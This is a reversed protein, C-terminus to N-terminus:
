LQILGRRTANAGAETRSIVNMKAFISKVHSKVTGESIFLASGIEKNSKGQAMPKLVDIERELNRRQRTARTQRRSPAHLSRRRAGPSHL